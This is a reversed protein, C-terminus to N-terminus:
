RFEGLVVEIVYLFPVALVHLLENAPHHDEDLHQFLPGIVLPSGENFGGLFVKFIVLLHKCTRHAGASCEDRVVM